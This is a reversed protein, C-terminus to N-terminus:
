QARLQFSSAVRRTEAIQSESATPEIECAIEVLSNKLAFWQISTSGGNANKFELKWGSVGDLTIQMDTDAKLGAVRMGSKFSDAEMFAFKEPLLGNFKSTDIECKNQPSPDDYYRYRIYKILAAKSSHSTFPITQVVQPAEFSFLGDPDSFTVWGADANADTALFLLAALATTLIRRM